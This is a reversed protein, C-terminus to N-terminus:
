KTGATKRKSFMKGIVSCIGSAFMLIGAAAAIYVGVGLHDAIRFADYYGNTNHYTYVLELVIAGPLAGQAFGGTRKLDLYAMIFMAASIVLVAIPVFMLVGVDEFESFADLGSVTVHGSSTFVNFWSLFASSVGLIAGLVLMVTSVRVTRKKSGGTDSVNGRVIDSYVSGKTYFRRHPM